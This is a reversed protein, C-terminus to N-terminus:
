SAAPIPRVLKILATEFEKELTSYSNALADKKITVTLHVGVRLALHTEIITYLRRRLLNRDVARKYNASSIVVASKESGKSCVSLRLILHTTHLVKGGKIKKFDETTLRKSKPLM